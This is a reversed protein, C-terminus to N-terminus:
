VVVCVVVCVGVGGGALGLGAVGAGAFGAACGAAAFIGACGAAFVGACGVAFGAGVAGADGALAAFIGTVVGPDGAFGAAAELATEEVALGLTIGAAAAAVVPVDEAAAATEVPAAVLPVVPAVAEESGAAALEATEERGPTLLIGPADAADPAAFGPLAKNPLLELV